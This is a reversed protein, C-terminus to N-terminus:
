KDWPYPTETITTVGEEEVTCYCSHDKYSGISTPDNYQCWKTCYDTNTDKYEAISGIAIGFGFLIMVFLIVEWPKWM